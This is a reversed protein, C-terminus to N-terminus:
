EYIHIFCEMIFDTFKWFGVVFRCSVLLLFCLYFCSFIVTSNSRCKSNILYLWTSISAPIIQNSTFFITLKDEYTDRFVMLMFNSYVNIVYERHTRLNCKERRELQQVIYCVPNLNNVIMVFWQWNHSSQRSWALKM